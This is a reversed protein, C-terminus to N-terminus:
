HNSAKTKLRLFKRLRKIGEAGIITLGAYQCTKALGFLIFWIIGKIYAPIPLTMQAFSLIYLPVCVSLVIMGTRFSLGRLFSKIKKIAPHM